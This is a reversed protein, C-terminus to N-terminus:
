TRLVRTLYGILLVLAAGLELFAIFLHKRERSGLYIRLAEAGELTFLVAGVDGCPLGKISKIALLAACLLEGAICAATGARGNILRRREDYGGAEAQAKKLIEEREM